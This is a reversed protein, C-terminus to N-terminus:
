DENQLGKLLDIHKKLDEKMTEFHKRDYDVGQDILELLEDYKNYALMFQSLQIDLDVERQGSAVIENIEKYKKKFIEDLDVTKKRSFFGM